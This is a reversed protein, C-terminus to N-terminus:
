ISHMKATQKFEVLRFGEINFSGDYKGPKFSIARSKMFEIQKKTPKKAFYIVVSNYCPYEPVKKVKAADKLWRDREKEAHKIDTNKYMDYHGQAQETYSKKLAVLAVAEEGAKYGFGMGNNKYNPNPYISCPRYCAHEDPVNVVIDEFQKAITKDVHESGVGCEGLQGTIYACLPREFNGAYEDTDIVFGWCNFNPTASM